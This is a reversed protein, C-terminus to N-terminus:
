NCSRYTCLVLYIVGVSSSTIADWFIIHRVHQLCYPTQKCDNSPSWAVTFTVHVSCAIQLKNVVTALRGRLLVTHRTVLIVRCNTPLPHARLLPVTFVVYRLLLSCGTGRSYLQHCLQTSDIGAREDSPAGSM